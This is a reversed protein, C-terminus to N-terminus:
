SWFYLLFCDKDTKCNPLTYAAIVLLTLISVVLGFWLVWVPQTQCLIRKVDGDRWLQSM